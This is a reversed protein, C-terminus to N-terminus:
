KKSGGMGFAKPITYREFIPVLLNGLLISYSVGEASPAFTRIVGTMIGLFIGYLIQGKHTVPSTVYDNAMFCAGFLVGGSMLQMLVFQGNFGSVLLEFVAFTILYSAPIQITIVNRYLMYAIGILLCLVSVEGICGATNGLFLDTMTGTYTGANIQALPTASTVADFGIKACSFDNMLGAFAIHLFARGAIAPNMFNQGLGGYLQKVVVIAFVAGVMPVWVPVQPPMNLSLIMGTVVASLDNITIPLHLAKEYIYESAVAAAVTAIMIVLSYIGFHYIGWLSIPVMAIIVDLMERHTTLKSRFHPSSSVNPIKKM